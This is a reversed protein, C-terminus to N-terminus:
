CSACCRRSGRRRDRERPTRSRREEGELCRGCRRPSVGGCWAAEFPPLSCALAGMLGALVDGSGATALAPNGTPNVVIRGDPAAIVTHPGKLVVVARARAAATRAAGFRDSEVEESTTGLLRALEGAHPTLIARGSAAAFDELAKGCPAHACRRRRRDPGTYSASCTASPRARASTRASARDWSSPASTPSSGRRDGRDLAATRRHADDDGRRRAVRAGDGRGAVDRHHGRGRRGAARRAGVLLAAGIKGVRAPSCRSMVRATSTRTSRARASCRACTARRSSRPPTSPACRPRSASTSSTCTGSLHAGQGTLHGLKLHAFTVTDDARVATGMAVGTDANMGSPVDLAVKRVRADNVFTSSARSSSASRGISAPASSRTSSWTPAASRSASRISRPRCRGRRRSRRPRRVRRLERPLGRDDEDGRRRAVGRRARRARAPSSRRRLRRRRQQRHRVRGRRAQRRRPRRPGRARHRRGRRAGREGDARPEPGQLGRHRAQRVCADARAVPRPDHRSGRATARLEELIVVAVAVGADHTISVHWTDAGFSEVMAIANGKCSSSRGGARRAACRSRTGASARRATSRRRSPRRSPSAVPSRRPAHRPGHSRRARGRQLHALLLSRRPARASSADARDLLRRHRPRRDNRREVRASRPSCRACRPRCARSVRRRRDVAHGINLEVIEPIAVLAPVNKTTLGHGAAIELGLERGRKSAARSAISSASRPPPTARPTLTSAPTCSSRSSASRM